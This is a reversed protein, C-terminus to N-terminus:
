QHGRSLSRVLVDPGNLGHADCRVGNKLFVDEFFPKWGTEVYFPFNNGERIKQVYYKM